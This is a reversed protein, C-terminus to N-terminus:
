KLLERAPYFNDSLVQGLAQHCLRVEMILVQQSKLLDPYNLTWIISFIFILSVTIYVFSIFFVYNLQSYILIEYIYLRYTISPSNLAFCILVWFKFLCKSPNIFKGDSWNKLIM